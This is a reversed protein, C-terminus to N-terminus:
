EDSDLKKKKRSTPSKGGGKPQKKPANLNKIFEMFEGFEDALVSDNGNPSDIEEECDMMARAMRPPPFFTKAGEDNQREMTRIFMEHMEKEKRKRWDKLAKRTNPHGESWRLFTLLEALTGLPGGTHMFEPLLVEMLQQSVYNSLMESGSLLEICAILSERDNPLEAMRLSQIVEELARAARKFLEGNENQKKKAM